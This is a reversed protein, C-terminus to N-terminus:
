EGCAAEYGADKVAKVLSAATAVGAKVTVTATGNELSVDASLVGKVGELAEKVHAVCRPCMMGEVAITLVEKKGFLM